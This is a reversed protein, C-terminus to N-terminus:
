KKHHEGTVNAGPNSDIRYRSMRSLRESIRMADEGGRVSLKNVDASNSPLVKPIEPSGALVVSHVRIIGLWELMVNSSIVRLNEGNRTLLNSMLSGLLLLLRLTMLQYGYRLM